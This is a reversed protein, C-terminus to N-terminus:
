AAKRKTIRKSLRDTAVRIVDTATHSVADRLAVAPMGLDDFGHTLLNLVDQLAGIAAERDTKGAEVIRDLMSQASRMIVAPKFRTLPKGGPRAERKPTDEAMKYKVAKSANISALSHKGRVIWARVTSYASRAFVLRSAVVDVRSRTDSPDIAVAKAAAQVAEYFRDQVISLADAHQKITDADAEGKSTRIGQPKIGLEAQTTAILARLYTTRSESFINSSEIRQVCLAHIDAVTAVYGKSEISM